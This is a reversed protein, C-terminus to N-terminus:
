PRLTAGYGRAQLAALIDDIHEPGRTELELLVDTRGLPLSATRRDHSVRFINAGVQALLEALKALSGPIDQLEVRIKLYRGEALMGREVVRALTQVDINGGSLLCVTPGRLVPPRGYLLVAVTVAAAGETVLKGRELLSVIAQAIEEEEVTVIEDVLAEIIPYTLAGIQKIAIGDALSHAADLTIREGRQRSLLAGPSGAAEVGIIRVSPRLGKIASAVGAILGGGGIPVIVTDVEPLDQVIELGVTGQGAMILPHDFAPVHLLGRQQQLIRAHEAADEYSHGNLVVEAGYARTALLKALPTTEPMVVLAPVGLTRAALAVGQAHNGASATIVGQRLAEPEQGALFNFAGRIKFSGTRQLNECKFYVPTGAAESFFHSSILETHRVKGALTAAAQYIAELKPMTNEQAADRCLILAPLKIPLLKYM